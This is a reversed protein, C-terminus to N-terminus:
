KKYAIVSIEGDPEIFAKRVKKPSDIGKERLYSELMELTLDEKKLINEDVKGADIILTAHGEFLTTGIRSHSSIENIIKVIIAVVTIAVMSTILQANDEGYIMVDGIASGFSIILLLDTYSLHSLRRKGLLRILVFAYLFIITTRIVVSITERSEILSIINEM